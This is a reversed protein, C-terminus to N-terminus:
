NNLQDVLQAFNAVGQEVETIGSTVDALQQQADLAMRNISEMQSHIKNILEANATVVSDIERTAESTRSALNRVEDAVVAFGRGSEGARAAEIAANLALLNTQEAIASIMTVIKTINKSQESLVQSSKNAEAVQSSIQASTALAQDLNQKAALAIQSTQESTAAAAASADQATVVRQTIDSAFKIVKYVQGKEDYIPNYTAELWITRGKADLRKYRGSHFKGAALENWFRPHERYFASDCFMSHHKGKIQELSYGITQLFNKNADIIDGKPTFEIVALSKHLAIFMANKNLLNEQDRTVDSAIKIIKVVVGATDLVPFYTADLWIVKQQKTLRKFTGQLAQGKALDRWFQKYEATNVLEPECFLRHHAGVIEAATYGTVSLFLPNAYIVKGEPTFEIYGVNSRIARLSNELDTIIDAQEGIKERLVKSKGFM